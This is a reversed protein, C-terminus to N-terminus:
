PRTRIARLARTAAIRVRLDEDQVAGFLAPVARGGERGFAALVDASLRRVDADPHELAEIIKDLVPRAAPGMLTLTEAAARRVEISSGTLGAVLPELAEPPTDVRALAAAAAARTRADTSAAATTLTEGGINTPGVRGLATVAAQRVSPDAHSAARSLAEAASRARSGIRGLAYAAYQAVIPNADQLAASLEDIHEQTAEQRGMALAANARVRWDASGLGEARDTPESAPAAPTLPLDALAARPQEGRAVVISTPDRAAQARGATESLAGTTPDIAYTRVAGSAHAVFAYRGSADATVAVPTADTAVPPGLASLSGDAHVAWAAVHSNSRSTVYLLRGSADFAAGSPDAVSPTQIGADQQLAGGLPDVRYSTIASSPGASVVMLLSGGPHLALHAPRGPNHIPDGLRTLAGSERNVALVAVKGEQQEAVYVYKGASDIAIAVPEGGVRVTAAAPTTLEGTERSIRFATVDGSGFNAVFLFVGFPDVALQQPFTGARYDAPLKAPRGGDRRDFAHVTHVSSLFLFSESGDLALDWAVDAAAFPTESLPNLAGTSPEIQFAHIAGGTTGAVYVIQDRAPASTCAAATTLLGAIALVRVV